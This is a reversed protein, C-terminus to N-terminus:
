RALQIVTRIGRGAELDDIARSIDDLPRTATIMGALDLVGARALALFRPVDRQPQCSGYASGQVRKEQLIFPSTRTIVRADEGTPMGVLTTTGGARLGALAADLADQRGSTEVAHDAGGDTLAKIQRHVAEAPALAETAGFGLAADRRSEVPDVAIIQAAGAIRAGQIAGVGVGGAGFVVVRDGPRIGATNISAGLGTAVGCGLLCAEDLPTDPPVRVVASAPMVTYEAFGGVGVSRFLPAGGRAFGTDGSPLVGPGGSAECAAPHGTTCAHCRGCALAVTAVVTDGEVLHGVGEGLAVVYGAVEHGLVVPVLPSDRVLLDSHCLGCHSVKILVEGARPDGVEVDDVVAVPGGTTECIAARM